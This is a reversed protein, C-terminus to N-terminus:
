FRRDGFAFGVSGRRLSRRVEDNFRDSEADFEEESEAAIGRDILFAM